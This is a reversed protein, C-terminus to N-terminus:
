CGFNKLRSLNPKVRTWSQYPTIQETLAKIPSQNQFYNTIM